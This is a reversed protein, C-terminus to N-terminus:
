NSGNRATQLPSATSAQHLLHPSGAWINNPKLICQLDMASFCIKKCSHLLRLGAEFPSIPNVLPQSQPVVRTSPISPTASVSVPLMYVASHSPSHTLAGAKMKSVVPLGPQQKTSSRLSQGVEKSAPMVPEKSVVKTETLHEISCRDAKVARALLISCHERVGNNSTDYKPEALAQISESCEM